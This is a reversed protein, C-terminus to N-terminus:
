IQTEMVVDDPLTEQSLKRRKQYLLMFALALYVASVYNPLSVYREYLFGAIFPSVTMSLSSISSMIGLVEGRKERGAFGVVQSTMVVRLVSHGFTTFVLAICFIIFINTGLMLFGIIFVALMGL